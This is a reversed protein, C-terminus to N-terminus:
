DARPDIKLVQGVFLVDRRLSNEKRLAQVSTGHRKAISNLNDGSKVRYRKANQALRSKGEAAKASAVRAPARKASPEEKAVVTKVPVLRLRQGTHIKGSNLGNAKRLFEPNVGYRRAILTLNEGRRVIHISPSDTREEALAVNIKSRFVHRAIVAQQASVRAAQAKPVWIEYRRLHIPTHGRVLHPNAELLQPLSVGTVDAVARLHVPSPVEVAALEPLSEMQPTRFGYKKYDRAITMAALFKPVYNATELPLVKRKSLEWFNRSRGRFVVNMIRTEGANYAAMALHWSGFVNHLDRLYRAAAETSRIPDRREDIQSNVELGYRKGTAPMFQWVGKAKASSHAHTNFGSEIMALYFLEPPLNNEELVSEILPRYKEGRDLFRQFRERDRVSFFQIWKAVSENDEAPISEIARMVTEKSEVERETGAEEDFVQAVEDTMEPEPAQEPKFALNESEVAAPPQSMPVRRAKKALRPSEISACGIQQAILAM